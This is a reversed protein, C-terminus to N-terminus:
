NSGSSYFYIKSYLKAIEKIYELLMKVPPIDQFKEVIMDQTPITFSEFFPSRLLYFLLNMLRNNLEKKEVININMGITVSRSAIDVIFSIFWPKWSKKGYLFLTFLYFLPRFIWLIEGVVIRRNSPTPKSGINREIERQKLKLREFYFTSIIPRENNEEETGYLNNNRSPIKRHVLITGNNLYFLYFRILCKLMEIVTVATWRFNRKLFFSSQKDTLLYGVLEHVIETNELFSLISTLRINNQPFYSVEKLKKKTKKM